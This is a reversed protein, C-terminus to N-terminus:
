INIDVFLVVAYSMLEEQHKGFISSYTQAFSILYCLAYETM